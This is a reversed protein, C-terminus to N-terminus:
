RMRKRSKTSSRHSDCDNKRRLHDEMWDDEILGGSM